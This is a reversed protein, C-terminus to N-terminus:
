SGVDDEEQPLAHAGAYVRGELWRNYPTFGEEDASELAEAMMKLKADLNDIFHVVIAERTLPKVPAGFQAEGHHSLVIHEVERLWPSEIFGKKHAAERIVELGLIVHGILRGGLTRGSGSLNLERIKGIDHLMAGAIAISGNVEKELPLVAQVKRTVSVMHEILGGKYAHHIMRAAPAEELAERNCDLIDEVLEALEPPHLTRSIEILEDFLVQIDLSGGRVLIEPHSVESPDIQRIKEIVIQRQDRYQDVRGGIKVFDGVNFEKGWKRIVDAWMKASVAGTADGISLDLYDQGTRTKRVDKSRLEFLQLVNDGPKLDKVCIHESPFENM